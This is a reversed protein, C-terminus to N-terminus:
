LRPLMAIPDVASAHQRLEFHLQPSEVNGTNGSLAIVQGKKVRENKKVLLYSNHAYASVMGNDHRVLVMRGYIKLGEDAYLVKGGESALVPTGKPVAINIGTRAVGSGDDGFKRIIKGKVPWALGNARAAERDVQGRKTEALKAIDLEPEAKTEPLAADKLAQQQVAKTELEEQKAEAAGLPAKGLMAVQVPENVKEIVVPVAQGAVPTVDNAKTALQTSISGRVPVKIVSDAKLDQPEVFDNAAMIDLVSTNYQLSIRYITEKPQVTHQVYNVGVDASKPATVRGAAPEIAALHNDTMEPAVLKATKVPEILKPEDRGVAQVPQNVPESLARKMDEWASTTPKSNQAIVLEQGERIDSVAKLGNDKLIRDVSTHYKRALKYGTDTALVHHKVMVPEPQTAVPRAAVPQQVTQTAAALKIPTDTPGAAPAIEALKEEQIAAARAQEARSVLPEAMQGSDNASLPESAPRTIYRDEGQRQEMPTLLSNGFAGFGSVVNAPAQPACGAVLGSVGAVFWLNKNM